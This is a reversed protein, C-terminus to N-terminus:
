GGTFAAAFLAFDDLDVDGDFEFDFAACDDLYPGNDPGTMCGEWAAFDGLDVDDDCEADGIGFEYVGMDVQGCLIRDHGDLDTEPLEPADNTGANICPSDVLLHLDDDETGFEGDPGDADVFLPNDNINGEGPWGGQVCSYTATTTGDAGDYIGSGTPAADGWFVCNTLTPTSFDLSYMGGGYDRASNGSFTCNTLTPSSFDLNYMGGGAATAYGTASNGTFTCNALTPSSDNENYVGGGSDEASNGAFTCHTMTPNSYYRNYMGGGDDASNGSFTCNSVMPSSGDNYLGSGDQSSNGSFDCIALILSSVEMNFVGGGSHTASNGSFTCNALTPNSGVYNYMGGGEFASNGSFTCNTLTPSNAENYMGGGLDALNGSFTCNSVVPSSEGWNCIGGGHHDASNGSFICNALTPSSSNNFLGGGSVASGNTIRFGEIVTEPGEGNSCTIVSGGADGNIITAAPGATSRVTIAKGLLNIREVYVGPGVEIEDAAVAADIAAQITAHVTDQTVNRIVECEDPVGDGDVDISTGDAIDCADAVDNSNCDPGTFTTEDVGMDVRCQGIRDDGEYDTAVGSPIVSTDGGNIGPSGDLLHVDDDATGYVNDPGDADVFLPDAETNGVGYWGGQICSYTATTTSDRDDHIQAGMASTSGWLICNILMSTADDNYMGGGRGNGSAASNGSFTCNILTPSSDDNYLGGGRYDASNGSVTCNILTPNSDDNYLGGGRYVASNGSFICNSLTPSSRDTYMGGGAYDSSNSAITCNTFTPSSRSCYVGGGCFEGVSNGSITCNTFTPNGRSCYVGGGEFEALNGSITCNSLIPSSSAECRVGGGDHASNGNIICNIVTPSSNNRCYVGSGYNGSGNTITVGEVISGAGEGSHFLFGGGDNECDIICLAPDGSESRVTIAKGGFDLNKNGAGTYTGDAVIIEDGPLATNVAAQITPHQSPVYLAGTVYLTVTVERPSNIAQPDAIELPATYTGYPLGSVDVSLTVQDVEGSSEGKIPSVTLWTPQGTVEWNLTGGGCNRLSLTQDAPDEDGEPASFVFKTPSLAIRPPADPNFEYAGMDAIAVTDGDGDLPRPNGDMDSATLGGPPENTGTDICPSGPLLHFDGQFALLPDADINGTGPWGGQLCSHTVTTATSYGDLIQPYDPAANGWLICNTLVSNSGDFNGMGGGGYRYASNGGFTCNTLIPSSDWNYVGGGEYGATNRSLTCNALTPSAAFNRIGGGEQDASNGTFTCNTLKPNSGGNAMGGGSRRAANREFDCNALTPSSEELNFMGAGYDASNGSFTCHTVTPNAGFNLMGAGYDATNGSFTCNTVTPSSNGESYMGGGYENASNGSVTCDTLTPSGDFIYVGGGLADPWVQDNNGATITVGDLVATADTGSGTVVQYSNDAYAPGAPFDDPDDDGNLDGSLITEFLAIDRDDPDGGVCDGAPCGRYGGSVELDNLLQFTATRDDETVQGGEALDPHYTGGAVHIATIDPDSAAGSLADQLHTFATGWSLGDGGLAADDDVYLVTQAPAPAAILLVSVLGLAIRFTM